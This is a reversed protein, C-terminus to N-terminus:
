VIGVTSLARLLRNVRDANLNRLQAIAAPDGAGDEIADALNLRAFAGIAHTVWLASLLQLMKKHLIATDTNAAVAEDPRINVRVGSRELEDRESVIKTGAPSTFGKASRNWLQM